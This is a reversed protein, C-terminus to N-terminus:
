RNDLEPVAPERAVHTLFRPKGSYLFTRVNPWCTTRYDCYSCNVGLKRNGSKGDPEDSFTREPPFEQAVIDKKKQFEELKNDLEPGFDYMDLCLTGNQKDIVLFAGLTEHSEVEHDRGAFVYSSLQSIYGFPDDERLGGSAFKKFAYSSASKVDVTIGDIVADRHGKIGEVYLVDQEGQVDHGAAKALSLVLAEIIDGYKFKLLTSAPLSSADGQQNISYWLKRDCPVGMQSLRLTGGRHEVEEPTQMRTEAFDRMTDVFYDTIAADWGGRNELESYIDKVLTSIQPKSM